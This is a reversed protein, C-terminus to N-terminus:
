IGLLMLLGRVAMEAEQRGISHRQKAEARAHVFNRFDRIGHLFKALAKETGLQACVDILQHLKYDVPAILPKGPYAVQFAADIPFRPLGDIGDHLLGEVVSASAILAPKYFGLRLLDLAELANQRLVARLRRDKVRRFRREITALNSSYHETLYRDMQSRSRSSSEKRASTTVDTNALAPVTVEMAEVHKYGLATMSVVTPQWGRIRILREEDLQRVVRNAQAVDLIGAEAAVSDAEAHADGPVSRLVAALRRLFADRAEADTMMKSPDPLKAQLLGFESVAEDMSRVDLIAEKLVGGAPLGSENDWTVSRWIPEIDALLSLAVAVQKPQLGGAEAIRGVHWFKDFKERFCQALPGYGEPTGEPTVGLLQDCYAEVVQVVREREAAGAARLALLGRLSVRHGVHAEALLGRRLLEDRVRRQRPMTQSWFRQHASKGTDLMRGLVKSLLREEDRSLPDVVAPMGPREMPRPEQQMRAAASRFFGALARLRAGAQEWEQNHNTVANWMVQFLHEHFPQVEDPMLADKLGQDMTSNRDPGYCAMWLGYVAQEWPKTEPTTGRLPKAPVERALREATDALNTLRAVTM